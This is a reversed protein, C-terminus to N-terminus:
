FDGPEFEADKRHHCRRCIFEGRRLAKVEEVLRRLLEPSRKVYDLAARVKEKDPLDSNEARRLLEDVETILDPETTKTTM